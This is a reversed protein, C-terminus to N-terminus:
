LSSTSNVINAQANQYVFQSIHWLDRSFNSNNIGNTVGIFVLADKDTFKAIEQNKTSQLTQINCNSNTYGTVEFEGSLKDKLRVSIGRMHSDGYILVKYDSMTKSSNTRGNIITPIQCCKNDGDQGRGGLFHSGGL